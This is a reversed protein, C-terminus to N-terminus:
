AKIMTGLRYKSDKASVQHLKCSSGEQLFVRVVHIYTTHVYMTGLQFEIISSAACVMEIFIVKM